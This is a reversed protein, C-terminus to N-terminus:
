GWEIGLAGSIVFELANVLYHAVVCALLSNTQIFVVALAFGLVGTVLIGLRGQAGHGFAFAASSGGALFWPSIDFGTSLAGILAARFLLEEFFAIIPLVACLLVIWGITTEPTLLERLQEDYDYGLVSAGVAGAANAAYLVLGAITGVALAAISPTFDVGLAAPPVATYWASAVLIIAFLGQSFAVNVLLMGTSFQPPSPPDIGNKTGQEGDSDAGATEEVTIDSAHEGRDNSSRSYTTERPSQDLSENEGESVADQSLRALTLLLVLVVGTLGAFASWNTV